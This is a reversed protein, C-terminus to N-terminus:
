TKQNWTRKIKNVQIILLKQGHISSKDMEDFEIDYGYLQSVYLVRQISEGMKGILYKLENQSEVIHFGSPDVVRESPQKEYAFGYHRIALEVADQFPGDKELMSHTKLKDLLLSTLKADDYEDADEKYKPLPQERITEYAPPPMQDAYLSNEVDLNKYTSARQGM